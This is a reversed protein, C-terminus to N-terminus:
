RPPHNKRFFSNRSYNELQVQKQHAIYNEGFGDTFMELMEQMTKGGPRGSTLTGINPPLLRPLDWPSPENPLIVNELMTKRSGGGAFSGVFGHDALIPAWSPVSEFPWSILQPTIGLMDEIEKKSEIMDSLGEEPSLVALDRHTESHSGFSFVGSDRAERFGNWCIDGQCLVSEKAQMYRTWILSIFHTGTEQLVPIMRELSTHSVNGSDTTLIICRAPLEMHGQIYAVVEDSTATWVETEQLLTMLYKFTPPNMCYAGDYFYYNDGHFELAPIRTAPGYKRILRLRETTRSIANGIALSAAALGSIKLFNRRSISNDPQVSM